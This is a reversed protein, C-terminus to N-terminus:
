PCKVMIPNGYQDRLPRGRADTATCAEPTTEHGVVAGTVGGIAAGAITSGPNGGSVASGIAAGTGAGILGGAVTRDSQSYESCGALGLVVIAAIMLGKKM